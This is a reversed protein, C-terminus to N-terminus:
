EYLELFIAIKNKHTKLIKEFEKTWKKLVEAKNEIEGVLDNEELSYLFKIIARLDRSKLKIPRAIAQKYNKIIYVSLETFKEVKLMYGTETGDFGDRHGCLYLIVEDISEDLGKDKNSSNLERGYIKINSYGVKSQLQQVLIIGDKTNEGKWSSKVRGNNRM